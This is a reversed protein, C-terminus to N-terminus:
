ECVEEKFFGLFRFARWKRRIADLVPEVPDRVSGSGGRVDLLFISPTSESRRTISETLTLDMGARAFMDLVASVPGGWNAASLFFACKEDPVTQAERALVLFRAQGRRRGDGRDEPYPGPPESLGRGIRLKIAGAVSLRGEIMLDVVAEASGGTLGEFPVIGFDLSGREVAQIVDELDGCPIPVLGANYRHAAFQAWAGYKGQFGALPGHTQQLRRSEKMIEDFLSHVFDGKVLLNHDRSYREAQELVRAERLGDRVASKLRATRLALAMREDLLSLIERDIDDICDRIKRLDM